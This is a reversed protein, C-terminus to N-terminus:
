RECLSSKRSVFSFPCEIDCDDYEKGCALRAADHSGLSCAVARAMFGRRGRFPNHCRCTAAKNLFYQLCDEDGEAVYALVSIALFAKLVFM